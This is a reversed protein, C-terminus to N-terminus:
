GDRERGRGEGRTGGKVGKGYVYAGRLGALPDLHASYAGGAAMQHMKLQFHM